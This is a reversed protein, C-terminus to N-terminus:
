QTQFGLMDLEPSRLDDQKDVVGPFVYAEYLEAVGQLFAPKVDQSV